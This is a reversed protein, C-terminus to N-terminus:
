NNREDRGPLAFVIFRLQLFYAISDTYDASYPNNDVRRHMSLFVTM